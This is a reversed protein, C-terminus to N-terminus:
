DSAKVAQLASWLEAKAEASAQLDAVSPAQILAASHAALYGSDVYRSLTDGFVLILNTATTSGREAILYASLADRAQEEGTLLGPVKVIPWDFVTASLSLQEERQWHRAVARAINAVLRKSVPSLDAASCDALFRVGIGSDILSATFRLVRTAEGAPSAETMSRRASPQEASSDVSETLEGLTRRASATDIDPVRTEPRPQEETTVTDYQPVPPQSYEARISPKAGPLSFRPVYLPVGMAKLYAQQLEASM